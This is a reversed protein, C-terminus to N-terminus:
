IFFFTHVSFQRNRFFVGTKLIHDQLSKGFKAVGPRPEQCQMAGNYGEMCVYGTECDSDMYCDEGEKKGFMPM